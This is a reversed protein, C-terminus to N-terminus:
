HNITSADRTFNGQHSHQQDESIILWCQNLYHSPAMLCCAMVQALIAGSKQQWIADSPWLPNVYKPRLLIALLKCFVNEFINKEIFSITNWKLNWQLKKRHNCIKCYNLMPEPLPKTSFPRCSMGSDFNVLNDSAFHCWLTVILETFVFYQGDNKMFWECMRRFKIKIHERPACRCIRVSELLSRSGILCCAMVQVLPKGFRHIWVTDCPWLSNVYM